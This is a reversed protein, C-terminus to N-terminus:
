GGKLVIQSNEEDLQISLGFEDELEELRAGLEKAQETSSLKAVKVLSEYWEDMKNKRLLSNYDLM